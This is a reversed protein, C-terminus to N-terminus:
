IYLTTMNRDKCHHDAGISFMTYPLMTSTYRICKWPLNNGRVNYRSQSYRPLKIRPSDDLDLNQRRNSTEFGDRSNWSQTFCITVVLHDMQILHNRLILYISRFTIYLNSYIVIKKLAYKDVM